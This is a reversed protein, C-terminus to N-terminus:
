PWVQSPNSSLSGAPGPNYTNPDGSTFQYIKGDVIVACDGLSSCNLNGTLGPFNTQRYIAERVALPDVHLTGQEDQVAVTTVANLLLNAADYAYAHFDTLPNVAYKLRYATLFIQYAAARQDFEHGTAATYVGVADDGTQELLGPASLYEWIFIALNELGPTNKLESILRGAVQTDLIIMIMVDAESEIIANVTPALYTTGNEIPRELVCEGGLDRFINCM